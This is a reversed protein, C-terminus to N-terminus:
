SSYRQHDLRSNSSFQLLFNHYSFVVTLVPLLFSFKSLEDSPEGDDDEDILIKNNEDYTDSAFPDADIDAAREM